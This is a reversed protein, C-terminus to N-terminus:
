RFNAKAASSSTSNRMIKTPTSSAPKRAPLLYRSHSSAWATTGVAQGGFVKGPIRIEPGLELVYDKIDAFGGFDAASFNDGKEITQIQKMDNAIKNKRQLTIICRAM